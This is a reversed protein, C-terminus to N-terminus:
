GDKELADVEFELWMDSGCYGRFTVYQMRSVRM